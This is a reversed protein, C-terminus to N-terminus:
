ELDVIWGAPLSIFPYVEGLFERNEASLRSRVGAAWAGRLQWTGPEHLVRLSLFFDYAAGLDWYIETQIM